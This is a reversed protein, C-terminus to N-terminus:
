KHKFIRVTKRYFNSGRKDSKKSTKCVNKISSKRNRLFVRQNDEIEKLKATDRKIRKDLESLKAANNHLEVNISQLAKSIGLFEQM